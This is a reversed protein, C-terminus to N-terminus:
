PFELNQGLLKLINVRLIFPKLKLLFMIQQKFFNLFNLLLQNVCDMLILLKGFLVLELVAVGLLRVLDLSDPLVAIM